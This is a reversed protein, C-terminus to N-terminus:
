PTLTNSSKNGLETPLKAGVFTYMIHISVTVNDTPGTSIGAQGKHKINSATTRM